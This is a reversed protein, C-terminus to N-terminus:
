VLLLQDLGFIAGSSLAAPGASLVAPQLDHVWAQTYGVCLQERRVLHQQAPLVEVQVRQTAPQGLGRRQARYGPEDCSDSHGRRLARYFVLQQLQSRCCLAQVTPQVWILSGHGLILRPLRPPCRDGSHWLLHLRQDFLYQSM